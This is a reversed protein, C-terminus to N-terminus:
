QKKKNHNASIFPCWVCCMLLWQAVCWAPFMPVCLFVKLTKHASYNWFVVIGVGIYIYIYIIYLIYIYTIIYICTYKVGFFIHHETLVCGLGCLQQRVGYKKPRLCTQNLWLWMTFWSFYYSIIHVVLGMPMNLEGMSLGLFTYIRPSKKPIETLLAWSNVDNVVLALQLDRQVPIRKRVDM